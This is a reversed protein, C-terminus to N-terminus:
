LYSVYDSRQAHGEIYGVGRNLKLEGGGGLCVYIYIYYIHIYEYPPFAVIIFGIRIKEAGM